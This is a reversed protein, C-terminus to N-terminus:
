RGLGEIIRCIAAVVLDPQVDLYFHSGPFVRVDFESAALRHWHVLADRPATHDSAGAFVTLPATISGEPTYTETMRMDARLTPLFADLIDPAEALEAPLGGFRALETVFQAAPLGAIATRPVRDHDPLCASIVVHAAPRGADQLRRALAYALLGGMSHGFLVIPRQAPLALVDPLVSAAAQDLDTTLPEGFRDERGPLQVAHLAVAEPLLARWAAFAAAGGGAHPACVLSVAPEASAARGVPEATRLWTGQGRWRVRPRTAVNQSM